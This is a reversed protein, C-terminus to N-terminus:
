DINWYADPEGDFITDIDDDSYGMVDQAFSGKYRDYTPEDDCCRWDSESGSCDDEEPEKYYAEYNWKRCSEFTLSIPFGPYVIRIQELADDHLLFEEIHTVCWSLYEPNLDMVDALTLGKYRGFTFRSELTTLEVWRM